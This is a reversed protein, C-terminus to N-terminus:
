VIKNQVSHYLIIIYLIILNQLGKLAFLIIILLYHKFNNSKILYNLTIFIIVVHYKMNSNTYITYLKIIKFLSLIMMLILNQSMM